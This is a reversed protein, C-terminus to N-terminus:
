TTSIGASPAGGAPAKVSPVMRVWPELDAMRKGRAECYARMRERCAAETRWGGFRWTKGYTGAAGARFGYPATKSSLRVAAAWRAPNNRRYAALKEDRGSESAWGGFTTPKITLDDFGYSPVMVPEPTAGARVGPPVIIRWDSRARVLRRVANSANGEITDLLGDGRDRVVLGIHVGCQVIFAGPPVLRGAPLWLDLEDATDCAIKTWPHTLGLPVDAASIGAARVVARLFIGCWPARILDGPRYWGPYDREAARQWAEIQEGDNRGTAESVGVYEQATSIMLQAVTAM